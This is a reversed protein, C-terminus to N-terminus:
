ESSSDYESDSIEDAMLNAEQEESENDEEDIFKKLEDYNNKKRNCTQRFTSINPESQLIMKEILDKNTNERSNKRTHHHRKLFNIHLKM